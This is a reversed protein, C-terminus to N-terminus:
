DTNFTAAQHNHTFRSSLSDTHLAPRRISSSAPAQLQQAAQGQQLGPALPRRCRPGRDPHSVLPGRWWLCELREGGAVGEPDGKVAALAVKATFTPSHSRRTGRSM